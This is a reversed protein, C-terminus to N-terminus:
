KKRYGHSVQTLSCAGSCGQPAQGEAPLQQEPCCPLSLLLGCEWHQRVASFQAGPKPKMREAEAEPPEMGSVNEM